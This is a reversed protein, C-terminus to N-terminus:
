QSTCAGFVVFGVQDDSATVTMNGTETIVISWGRGNQAGQLILRKNLYEMNDIKASRTKEGVRDGVITKTKFNVRLFQPIDISHATGQQCDNNEACDFTEVVACLLPTSGDFDGAMIPAPIFILCLMLATMLKVRGM